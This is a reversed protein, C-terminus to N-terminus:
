PPDSKPLSLSKYNNVKQFSDGKCIPYYIDNLKGICKSSIYGDGLLRSKKKMIFRTDTLISLQLPLFSVNPAGVAAAGVM